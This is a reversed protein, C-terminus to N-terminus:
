SYHFSRGQITGGTKGFQLKIYIEGDETKIKMVYGKSGRPKDMIIEELITERNQLQEAIFDWAGPLTFKLGSRPDTVTTPRWETPCDKTWRTIRARESKALRALETKISEFNQPKEM